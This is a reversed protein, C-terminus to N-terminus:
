GGDSSREVQNLADLLNKPRKIRPGSPRSPDGLEQKIESDLQQATWGAQAARGLWRLMESSTGTRSARRIHEVRLPTNGPVRCLNCLENLARKGFKRAFRHAKLANDLQGDEEQSVFRAARDNAVKDRGAQDLVRRGLEHFARIQQVAQDPQLKPPVPDGQRSTTPNPTKADQGAVEFRDTQFPLGKFFEEL